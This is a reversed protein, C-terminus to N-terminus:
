VNGPGATYYVTKLGYERMCKELFLLCGECPRSPLFKDFGDVHQSRSIRMILMDAGRLKSVDGLEKVVNREAHISRDSYGCGRSRTGVKNTAHALVKGRKLLVAVHVSARCSEQSHLRVTRPDDLFHELITKHIRQPDQPAEM